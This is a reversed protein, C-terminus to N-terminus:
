SITVSYWKCDIYHPLFVGHFLTKKCGNKKDKAIKKYSTSHNRSMMVLKKGPEEFHFLAKPLIWIGASIPLVFKIDNHRISTFNIILQKKHVYNSLRSLKKRIEIQKKNVHYLKYM